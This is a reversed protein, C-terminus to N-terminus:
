KNFNEDIFYDKFYQKYKEWSFPYLEGTFINIVLGDRRNKSPTQYILFRIGNVEFSNSDTVITHSNLNHRYM